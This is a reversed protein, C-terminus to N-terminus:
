KFDGSHKDRRLETTRYWDFYSQTFSECPGFVLRWNKLNALIDPRSVLRFHRCQGSIDARPPFGSLMHESRTKRMKFGSGVYASNFDRLAATERRAPHAIRETPLVPPMPCHFPALEDGQEAARSRPREHHARLLGRRRHDPIEAEGRGLCISVQYRSAFYTPAGTTESHIRLGRHNVLESFAVM